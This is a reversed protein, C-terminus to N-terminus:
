HFDKRIHEKLPLNVEKIGELVLRAIQRAGKEQFHVSDMAGNPYNPYDGANLWLFMNKTKDPGLQQFLNKSKATLNIVPVNKEKGLEMMAAPYLGHSKLATGDKSFGMREVPTVLIPIAGKKRAGDIYQTLYSKYTTSPSTYRNLDEIKEDNHGFQIFLYDGKKIHNLIWKLRGEDIFSKSSRGSKAQNSVIIQDDFMHTLEQGWGSRPSLSKPYTAVTSDGALYITIPGKAHQHNMNKSSARALHFGTYFFLGASLAIIGM